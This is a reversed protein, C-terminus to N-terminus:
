SSRGIRGSCIHFRDLTSKVGAREILQCPSGAICDSRVRPALYSFMLPRRHGLRKSCHRTNFPGSDLFCGRLEPTTSRPTGPTTAPVSTNLNVSSTSLAARAISSSIGGYRAGHAPQRSLILHGRIPPPVSPLVGDVLDIRLEQQAIGFDEHHDKIM